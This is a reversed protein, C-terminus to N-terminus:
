PILDISLWADTGEKGLRKGAWALAAFCGCKHRYTLSGRMGLVTENELDYDASVASALWTAWPIQLSAGSTWGSRDFWEGPARPQDWSDEFLLRVLEPATNARGDLYGSTHLGDVPGVRWHLATMFVRKDAGIWVANSSLAATKAAVILRSAVGPSPSSPPGLAGGRVWLSAGARETYRGLATRLGALGAIFKQSGFEPEAFAAADASSALALASLFPEVRHIVPEAPVGFQREFPLRAELETGVLGSLQQAQGEPADAVRARAEDRVVASFGVPGIRGDLELAARQVLLTQAGRQADQTTAAALSSQMTGAEAVAQGFAVHLLPGAAGYEDLPGGRPGNAAFGWGLLANSSALGVGVLARDYRRAAEELSSTSAIGRAARLATVRFAAFEGKPNSDAAHSELALGSARLYDWRVHSSSPGLGLEGELEAGGKAYGSARLDLGNSGEETKGLPVHLGAGALLGDAGRWAVRPALLGLEDPNRLKLLPLWFVPLGGVLLTPNQLSVDRESVTAHSFGIAVPPEPCPCSALRGRGEIEIRDATKRLVLRESTLRYRDAAM